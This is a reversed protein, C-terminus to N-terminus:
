VQSVTFYHNVYFTSSLVTYPVSLSLSIALFISLIASLTDEYNMYKNLNPHHFSPSYLMRTIFYNNCYQSIPVSNQLRTIHLFCVM